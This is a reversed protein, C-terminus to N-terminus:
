PRELAVFWRGGESRVARLVLGAGLALPVLAQAGVSAWGFWPSVGGLTELRVGLRRLPQAPPGTEVV